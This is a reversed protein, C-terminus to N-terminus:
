QIPQQDHPVAPPLDQAKADRPMRGGLPDGILERFRAAPLRCRAVQDAVPIGAIAVSEKAAKTRETNAITWCRWAGGPLIAVRLPQNARDSPLAEVVDSHEPLSVQTM